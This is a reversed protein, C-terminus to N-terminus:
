NEWYKKVYINKTNETNTMETLINQVKQPVNQVTIFMCTKPDFKMVTGCMGTGYIDDNVSWTGLFTGIKKERIKQELFPFYNNSSKGFFRRIEDYPYEECKKEDKTDNYLKVSITGM